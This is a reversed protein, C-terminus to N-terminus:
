HDLEASPPAPPRLAAAVHRDFIVQQEPTLVARLDVLERRVLNDMEDRNERTPRGLSELQARYSGRISDIQAHQDYTQTIGLLPNPARLIAPLPVPEEYFGGRGGMSPGCACLAGALMASIAGLSRTMHMIVCHRKDGNSALHRRKRWRRDSRLNVVLAGEELGVRTM